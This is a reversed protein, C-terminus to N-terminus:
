GSDFLCLGDLWSELMRWVPRFGVGEFGGVIEEELGGFEERRM